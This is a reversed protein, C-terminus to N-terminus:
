VNRCRLTIFLIKGGILIDFERRENNEFIVDVTEDNEEYKLVRSNWTIPIGERECVDILLKRFPGRM